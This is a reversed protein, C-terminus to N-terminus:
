QIGGGWLFLVCFPIMALLGHQLHEIVDAGLMICLKQRVQHLKEDVEVATNTLCCKGTRAVCVCVCVCMGGLGDGM